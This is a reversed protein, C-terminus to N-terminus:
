SRDVGAERATQGGAPQKATRRPAATRPSTAGPAPSKPVATRPAATRPAATRPSTAGRGTRGRANLSGTRAQGRAQNRQQRHQRLLAQVGLGQGRAQLVRLMIQDVTYQIFRLFKMYLWPLLGLVFFILCLALLALLAVAILKLVMSTVSFNEMNNQLSGAVVGNALRMALEAIRKADIPIFPVFLAYLFLYSFIFKLLQGFLVLLRLPLSLSYYLYNCVPSLLILVAALLFWVFFFSIVRPTGVFNQCYILYLAYLWFLGYGFLPGLWHRRNEYDTDSWLKGLLAGELYDM